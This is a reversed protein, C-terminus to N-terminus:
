KIMQYFFSLVASKFDIGIVKTLYFIYFCYSPFYSVSTKLLGPKEYESYLCHGYRKIIFKSLKQPPCGYSVFCTNNIYALWHTGKSPLNVVRM